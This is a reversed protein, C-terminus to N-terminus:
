AGPKSFDVNLTYPKVTITATVQRDGGTARKIVIDHSGLEV